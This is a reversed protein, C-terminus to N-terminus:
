DRTEFYILIGSTFDVCATEDRVENSIGISTGYELRYKDLRYKFGKLTLGTVAGNFPVFSVYRGFMNNKKIQISSNLLEIRNHSDWLVCKVGNSLAKYLSHINGIMHDIRTGTAGLIYIEDAGASIAKDVALETDTADKEPNYRVTEIDNNKFYEELIVSDASDFDGLLLDPEAGLKIVTEIGKDVAFLMDYKYKELFAAAFTLEM